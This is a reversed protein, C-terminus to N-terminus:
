LSPSLGIGGADLIMDSWEDPFPNSTNNEIIDCKFIKQIYIPTSSDKPVVKFVLKVFLNEIHDEVIFDSSSSSYNRYAGQNFSYSPFPILTNIQYMETSDNLGIIKGGNYVAEQEGWVFDAEGEIICDSSLNYGSGEKIYVLKEFILSVEIDDEIDPNIVYSYDLKSIQYSQTYMYSDVDDVDYNSLGTNVLIIESGEIVPAEQLNFVGLKIDPMDLDFVYSNYSEITGEAELDLDVALNVKQEYDSDSGFLSSTVSSFFGSIGSTLFSSLGDKLADVGDDVVDDFLDILTSGKDSSEAGDKLIEGITDANDEDTIINVTSSTSEESDSFLNDISLLSSQSTSESIISGTISGTISGSLTINSRSISKIAFILGGSYDDPDYCTLEFEFCYWHNKSLGNDISSLDSSLATGLCSVYQQGEDLSFSESVLSHNFIKSTNSENLGLIGVLDNGDSDLPHYYFFRIIGRYKNYIGIFPYTITGYQTETDYSQITNYLVEWGDISEIDDKIGSPVKSSVNTDFWYLFPSHVTGDICVTRPPDNLDISYNGISTTSKLDSRISISPLETTETSAYDLTDDIVEINAESCSFLIIIFLLYFFHKM